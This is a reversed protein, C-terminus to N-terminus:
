FVLRVGARILAYNLYENHATWRGDAFIGWTPSFRVELGGGGFGYGVSTGDFQGGAGIFAYPAFAWTGREFPYRAIFCGGFASIASDASLWEGELGIGFYRTFFYNTEIGGGYGQHATQRYKFKKTETVTTTKTTTTAPTTIVTNPNGPITTTTGPKTVQTTVTRTTTKTGVRQTYDVDGLAAAGFVGIQLEGTRFLEAPTIIKDKGMVPQGAGAMSAGLLIVFLSYMLKKM